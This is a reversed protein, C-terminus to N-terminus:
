ARVEVSAKGVGPQNSEKIAVVRSRIVLDTDPPTPEKYTLQLPHCHMPPM